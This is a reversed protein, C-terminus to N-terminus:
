AYLAAFNPEISREAETALGMRMDYYRRDVVPGKSNVQHVWGNKLLWRIQAAHQTKGTLQQLHEQTLTDREM